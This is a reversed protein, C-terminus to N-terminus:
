GNKNSKNHTLKAKFTKLKNIKMQLYNVNILEM